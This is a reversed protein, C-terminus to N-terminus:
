SLNHPKMKRTIFWFALWIAFGVLSLILGTRFYTMAYVMRITHNGPSILTGCIGGNLILLRAPKEDVFLKWGQDYPISLYMIERRKATVNGTILEDTHSTLQLTDQLMNARNQALVKIERVVEPEALSDSLLTDSLQLETLKPLLPVDADNVVVSKTAICSKQFASLKSFNSMRFFATSTFGFPLCLNNRYVTVAGSKCISDAMLYWVPSLRRKILFYRVLNQSEFVPHGTLGKSWRSETESHPDSIGCAQMFNIYHLQNFSGYSSTGNYDQMLGDNYSRYLAPASFYNKDIRYFGSDLKSLLKLADKTDDDYGHGASISSAPVSKWSNVTSGTFCITETAVVLLLAWHYVVHETGQHLLYFIGGYSILFILAFFQQSRNVVNNDHFYPFFLIVTLVFITAGLLKINLTRNCILDDLVFMAPIWLAVAVFFSFVRYYNGTFLWFAYRFSPFILPLIWVLYLLTFGIIQKRSLKRFFQPALLLAPIGIWFMPSELTNHWGHFNDPTGTMDNSFFRLLTAGIQDFPMHARVPRKMLTHAVSNNGGIRPNKILGAINELLFPGSAALGIAALGVGKTVLNRVAPWTLTHTHLLRFLAYFALFIGFFYANLPMTLGILFFPLPFLVWKNHQFLLEFALLMLVFNLVEFSFFHWVGGIIMYSCFSFSISGVVASLYQFKLTRLYFFVLIATTLIKALEIYVLGGAISSRGTFFLVLEFPDRLFFPFTNQGMGYNFSWGPLGHAPFTKAVNYLYPYLAVISDCGIGSFLYYKNGIIYSKFVFLLILTVVAVLFVIGSKGPDTFFDLNEFLGSNDEDKKLRDFINQKKESM